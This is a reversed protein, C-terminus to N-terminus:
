REATRAEGAYRTGRALALGLAALACALDFAIVARGFAGQGWLEVFFARVLLYGDVAIGLLPVVAYLVFGGLSRAARERNLLLNAVNVLLYTLMAFFTSTTGWWVYSQYPGVALGTVLAAALGLGFVFGLATWPSQFTPHLRAFRPPATGARGMSFLVRSAGVSTAIAIGLAASIATVPILVSWGGWAERALESIPMGGADIAAQVRAPDATQALLWIGGIVFAGFLSLSLFTAQPVLRRSMRTEEGLTSIVDFGCYSLMGFVLARMVGGAGDPSAALSFGGGPLPGSPSGAYITACLATVIVTEVLLFALAGRTSVSLGRFAMWAPWATLLAAGLAYTAFGGGVLDKFFVGLCVPQIIFNNFYYLFVIWGAWRAVGESGTARSIWHAASGSSPDQRSLLAYSIATPLTAALAWLFALPAARGAAAFSPGFNGYLTMAPSLMVTGLTAAGVLGIVDARLSNKQSEM